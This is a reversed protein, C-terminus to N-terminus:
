NLWVVFSQFKFAARPLYLHSLVRSRLSAPFSLGREALNKVCDRFLQRSNIPPRSPSLGGRMEPGPSMRKREEPRWLSRFVSFGCQAKNYNSGLQPLPAPTPPPCAQVQELLFHPLQATRNIFARLKDSGQFFLCNTSQGDELFAYSSISWYHSTKFNFSQIKSYNKM